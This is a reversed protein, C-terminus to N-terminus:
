NLTMELATHSALPTVSRYLLHPLASVVFYKRERALSWVVHLATWGDQDTLPIRMPAIKVLLAHERNRKACSDDSAYHWLQRADTRCSPSRAQEQFQSVFLFHPNFNDCQRMVRVSRNDMWRDMRDTM